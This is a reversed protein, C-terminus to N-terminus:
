RSERVSKPLVLVDDLSFSNRKIHKFLYDVIRNELQSVRRVHIRSLKGHSGLYVAQHRKIHRRLGRKVRSKRPTALIAHFHIGDNLAIDALTATSQWKAVPRDPVGILLPLRSQQTARTPRRILRTLLTRYFREVEQLMTLVM